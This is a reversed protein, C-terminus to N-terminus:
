AFIVNPGWHFEKEIAPLRKGQLGSTVDLVSAWDGNWTAMREPHQVVRNHIVSSMQLPRDNGILHRIVDHGKAKEYFQFHWHRYM